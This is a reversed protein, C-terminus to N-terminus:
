PCVGYCRAPLEYGCEAALLGQAGKLKVQAIRWAVLQHTLERQAAIEELRAKSIDFATVGGLGRRGQLWTLRQRRSDLVERAMAVQSRQTQVTFAAQRIEETALHHQSALLQNLQQWRFPVEYRDAASTFCQGLLRPRASSAGLLPDIQSMGARVAPLTHKSVSDRLITLTCLDPRRALGEAIAGEVDIPEMTGQLDAQPGIPEPDDVEFGLLYRLKGNLQVVSLELQERQERLETEQRRVAHQDVDVALGKAQLQDIYGIMRGIEELSQQLLERSAEAEALQYFAELASAAAENREEFERIALADMQMAAMMQRSCGGSQTCAVLQSESALANALAANAAALCQCTDADLSRLRTGPAPLPPLREAAHYSVPAAVVPSHAGGPAAEATQLETPAGGSCEWGVRCIRHSACGTVSAALLAAALTMSFSRLM